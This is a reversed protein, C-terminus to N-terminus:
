GDAPAAQDAPAQDPQSGSQAAQSKAACEACFPAGGNSADQLAQEQASSDDPPNGDGVLSGSGSAYHPTPSPAPPPAPSPAPPPPAPAAAAEVTSLPVHEIWAIRLVDIDGLLPFLGLRRNLLQTMLWSQIGDAAAPPAQYAPPCAAIAADLAARSGADALCYRLFEEDIRTRGFRVGDAFAREFRQGALFILKPRAPLRQGVRIRGHAILEAVEQVIGATTSGIRPATEGIWAVERLLSPGLFTLGATRVLFDRARWPQDRFNREVYPLLAAGPQESTINGQRDIILV